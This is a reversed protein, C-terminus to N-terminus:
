SRNEEAHAADSSGSPERGAMMRSPLQEEVRAIAPGLEFFAVASAVRRLSTLGLRKQAVHRAEITATPVVYFECQAVDLPDVTAKDRHAHLAFVYVDSTRLPRAAMVNTQADWARKAAIDFSISSLGRQKWSQLYGSAKVEIRLGSPTRVDCADWEVRCAGVANVAHAVLYEAVLGRLANGCAASCAWKWFSLLRLDLPKGSAHFPQEGRVADRARLPSSEEHPVADRPQDV